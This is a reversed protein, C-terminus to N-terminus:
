INYFPGLHRPDPLHHVLELRGVVPFVHDARGAFVQNILQTEVPPVVPVHIKLKTTYMITPHTSSDNHLLQQPSTDM